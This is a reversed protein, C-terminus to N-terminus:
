KSDFDLPSKAQRITVNQVLDDDSKLRRAGLL